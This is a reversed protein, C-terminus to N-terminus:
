YLHLQTYEQALQVRVNAEHIVSHDNYNAKQHNYYHYPASENIHAGFVSVRVASSKLAWLITLLGSTCAKNELGGEKEFHM